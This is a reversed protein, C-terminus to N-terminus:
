ATQRQFVDVRAPPLNFWVVKSARRIFGQFPGPRDPRVDYTFQIFCGDKDLLRVVQQEIALVTAKPLSRLPLSSVVFQVTRDGGLHPALIEDLFRADGHIVTTGQFRNKLVRALDESREIAVLRDPPIGRALLAATVVGTGAGLEVILGRSNDPIHSAMRRALGRSSPWAAGVHRPDAILERVFLGLATLGM